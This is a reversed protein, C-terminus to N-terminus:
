HPNNIRRLLISAMGINGFDTTSRIAKAFVNYNHSKQLHRAASSTMAQSKYYGAVTFNHLLWTM